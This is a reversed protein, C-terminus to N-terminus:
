SNVYCLVPVGRPACTSQCSLIGAITGTDVACPSPWCSPASGTCHDLPHLVCCSTVTIWQLSFVPGSSCAGGDWVCTVSDAQVHVDSPSPLPRCFCSPTVSIFVWVWRLCRVVRSGGVLLVAVMCFRCYSTWALFAGLEFVNRAIRSEKNLFYEIHAAAIYTIHATDPTVAPDKRCRTFAKRAAAAGDVRRVFRMFHVYALASPATTVLNEFAARAGDMDGALESQEARALHLAVCDPLALLGALILLPFFVTAISFLAVSRTWSHMPLCAAFWLFPGM